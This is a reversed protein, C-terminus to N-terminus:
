MRLLLWLLFLWLFGLHTFSGKFSSILKERLRGELVHLSELESLMQHQMSSLAFRNLENSDDGAKGVVEEGSGGDRGLELLEKWISISMAM